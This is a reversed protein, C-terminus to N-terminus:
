LTVEKPFLQTYRARSPIGTSRRVVASQMYETFASCALKDSACKARFECKHAECPPAPQELIATLLRIEGDQDIM